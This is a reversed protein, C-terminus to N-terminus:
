RTTVQKNKHVKFSNLNGYQNNLINYQSTDKLSQEKVKLKPRQWDM